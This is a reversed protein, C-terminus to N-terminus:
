IESAIYNISQCVVSQSGNLALKGALKICSNSSSLISMLFRTFRRHFQVNFPNEECICLLMHIM